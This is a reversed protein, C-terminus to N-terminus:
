DARPTGDSPGQGTPLAMFKYRSGALVQGKTAAPEHTGRNGGSTRGTRAWDSDMSARRM